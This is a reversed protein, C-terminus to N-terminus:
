ARSRRRRSTSPCAADGAPLGARRVRVRHGAHGQPSHVGQLRVQQPVLDVVKILKETTKSGSGAVGSSLFLGLSPTGRRWRTFPARLSTSRSRSGSAPCGTVTPCFHCDMKCFDHFMVRFLNITKGNPMSAKYVGPAPNKEARSYPARVAAYDNGKGPRSLVDDTAMGALKELKQYRDPDSQILM